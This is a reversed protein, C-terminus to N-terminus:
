DARPGTPSRGEGALAWDGRLGLAVQHRPLSSHPHPRERRAQSVRKPRLASPDGHLLGGPFSPALHLSLEEQCVGPKAKPAARCAPQHLFGAVGLGSDPSTLPLPVWSGGPDMWGSVGNEPRKAWPATSRHMVLPHPSGIELAQPPDGPVRWRASEPGRPLVRHSGQIRLLAWRPLVTTPLNPLPCRGVTMSLVRSLGTLPCWQGVRAWTLSVQPQPIRRWLHGPNQARHTLAGRGRASMRWPAQPPAGEAGWREPQQPDQPHAGRM